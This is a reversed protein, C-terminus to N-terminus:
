ASDVTVVPRACHRGFIHCTNTRQSVTYSARICPGRHGQCRGAAAGMRRRRPCQLVTVASQETTCREERGRRGRALGGPSEAGGALQALLSERGGAGAWEDQLFRVALVLASPAAGAMASGQTPSPAAARTSRAAAAPLLLLVVAASVGRPPGELGTSSTM